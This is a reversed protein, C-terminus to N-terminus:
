SDPDPIVQEGDWIGRVRVPQLSEGDWWGIPKGGVRVVISGVPLAALAEPAPDDDGPWEFM